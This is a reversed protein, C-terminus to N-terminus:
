TQIYRIYLFDMPNVVLRLQLLNADVDGVIVLQNFMFLRSGDVM